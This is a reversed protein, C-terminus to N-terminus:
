GYQEEETKIYFIRYVDDGAAINGSIGRMEGTMSRVNVSSNRRIFYLVLVAPVYHGAIGM